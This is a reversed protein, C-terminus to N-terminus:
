SLPWVLFPKQSPITKLLVYYAKPPLTLYITEPDAGIEPSTILKILIVIAHGNKYPYPNVSDQADPNTAAAASGVTPWTFLKVLKYIFIYIFMFVIHM